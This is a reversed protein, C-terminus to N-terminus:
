YSLGDEITEVLNRNYLQLQANIFESKFQKERFYQFGMFCLIITWFFALLM